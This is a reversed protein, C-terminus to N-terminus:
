DGGKHTRRCNYDDGEGSAGVREDSRSRSACYSTPQQSRSLGQWSFGLGLSALPMLRSRMQASRKKGKGRSQGRAAAEQKLM